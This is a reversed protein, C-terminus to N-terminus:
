KGVAPRATLHRAVLARGVAIAEDAFCGSAVYRLPLVGHRALRTKIEGAYRVVKNLAAVVALRAKGRFRVVQAIQLFQGVGSERAM